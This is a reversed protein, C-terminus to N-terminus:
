ELHLLIEEAIPQPLRMVEALKSLRIEADFLRTSKINQEIKIGFASLKINSSVRLPVRQSLLPYNERYANLKKSLTEIVEEVTTCTIDDKNFMDYLCYPNDIVYNYQRRLHNASFGSKGFLGRVVFDGKTFLIKTVKRHGSSSKSIHWSNLVSYEAHNYFCIMEVVFQKKARSKFRLPSALASVIQWEDRMLKHLAIDGLYSVVTTGIANIKITVVKVDNQATIEGEDVINFKWQHLWHVGGLYKCLRAANM